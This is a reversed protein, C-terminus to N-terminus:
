QWFQLKACLLAASGSFLNATVGPLEYRLRIYKYGSLTYLLSPM